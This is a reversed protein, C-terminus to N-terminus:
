GPSKLLLGTPLDDADNQGGAHLPPSRCRGLNKFPPNLTGFILGSIECNACFGLLSDAELQRRRRLAGQM